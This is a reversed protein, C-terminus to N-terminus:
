KVEVLNSSVYGLQNNRQALFWQYGDSDTVKVLPYILDINERPNCLVISLVNDAIKPYSRFNIGYFNWNNCVITASYYLPTQQNTYAQTTNSSTSQQTIGSRQNRATSDNDTIGLNSTQEEAKESSNTEEAKSSPNTSVPLQVNKSSEKLNINIRNRTDLPMYGLTTVFGLGILVCLLLFVGSLIKNM